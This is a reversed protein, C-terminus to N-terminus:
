GHPTRQPEAIWERVFDGCPLPAPSLASLDAANLVIFAACWFRGCPQVSDARGTKRRSCYPVHVHREQTGRLDSRISSGRIAGYRLERYLTPCRAQVMDLERVLAQWNRISCMCTLSITVLRQRLAEPELPEM